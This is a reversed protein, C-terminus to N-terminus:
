AAAATWSPSFSKDVHVLIFKDLLSLVSEMLARKTETYRPIM